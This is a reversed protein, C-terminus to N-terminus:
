SQLQRAAMITNNNIIECSPVHKSALQRALMLSIGGNPFQAIFIILGADPKGLFICAFIKGPGACVCVCFNSIVIRAFNALYKVQKNINQNKLQTRSVTSFYSPGLLLQCKYSLNDFLSQIHQLTKLCSWTYNVALSLDVFYHMHLLEVLSQSVLQQYLYFPDLDM